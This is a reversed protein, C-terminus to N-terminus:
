NSKIDLQVSLGEIIREANILAEKIDKLDIEIKDTFENVRILMVDKKVDRMTIKIYVSSM